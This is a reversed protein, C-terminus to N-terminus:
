LSPGTEEVAGLAQLSAIEAENLGQIGTINLREYPRNHRLTRLLPPALGGSCMDWIKIAGDDGCSGLSKGDPSVKISRIMGQHAAQVSICEGSEVSWWRLLGESGGSILRNGDRSWALAYVVGAHGAFTQVPCPCAVTGVSQIDWVFLEGSSSASTLQTGDPSWVVKNVSGHHGQLRKRPTGNTGEWLYVSGDDNGAALCTGDPSWALSIFMTQYPQGVWRLSRTAMDWVQVGQQHTGCALLSGDPSWAICLLVARPGAFGQVCLGSTTDWLRITTDWGGSAVFRGDPSWGAGLVIWTHGHLVQPPTEESLDWITVLADSGGSVLHTGDPSWDLDCLSVAYGAIVHLCQRSEVDWVRLTSDASGSLLLRSDPAFALRYVEGTHGLLAASCRGGEVDWLWIMKDGGCCALTRGDPSWALRRAQLDSLTDLLRLSELEWLKVTRDWHASVLTRGDPAFALDTVWSTQTSLIEVYTAPETQQREWLRMEGNVCGSALLRGDPSFAVAYVESSHALTQLATGNQPDWLRVTADTGASALLSGARCFALVRPYDQKGTWLLTGHPMGEPPRGCPILGECDWLKVTDYGGTALLRGDPSFALTWVAEVHAQWTLRLTQPRVGEWIGVQGQMSGAAWWRGDPSIAVSWTANIAETLVSDSIRARTLSTDHVEIGQLYVGRISLHSLDLGSLHGRQVRLLTILNAPGYGQAPMEHLQNLLSLLQEELPNSSHITSSPLRMYEHQLNALLPTVLLREQTQRIYEHATAQSLTYQILLTLRGQMIERSAEAILAATAYELVVSQLTYSGQRKGREILSRRSLCDLAELMQIPPQPVAQVILLEGLTAPERMIALWYLVTKELASLRAFQTDLLDTISGFIVTDGALFLGIEGGFLDVIIEAVIKLALPNGGYITCLREQESPTGVVDKEMFIQQCAEVDLGTLRLSRVPSLKSELPRLDAHKERSTLLLCSQHDTEAVRRLLQGYAEFGPRLRGRVDGPEMLSELNDLVVLARVKRLLSLLLSIRGELTVPVPLGKHSQGLFQPALVQLCEALLEECPPANRLSRFIAVEFHPSLQSMLSVALVTKGIGGMGLISVVRCHEQLVWQSLLALEQERGYFPPVALTDGWDVRPGSAPHTRISSCACSPLPSRVASLATPVSLPLGSDRRNQGDRRAQGCVECTEVIVTEQAASPVVHPQPWPAPEQPSGRQSLLASLWREDLLVKQHAAKWLARIEEAESGKHFAQQKVGLAIVKKLHEAKPYSSGAEWEGVARRSIGMLNALGAQTLGIATRLTLMTAAFGYDRERYTTKM